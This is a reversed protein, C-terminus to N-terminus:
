DTCDGTPVGVLRRGALAEPLEVLAVTHVLPATSFETRPPPGYVKLIVQDQAESIQVGKISQASATVVVAIHRGDSQVSAERWPLTCLGEAQEASLVPLTQAGAPLGLPIQRIRSDGAASTDPTTESMTAGGNTSSHVGSQPPAACGAVPVIMLIVGLLALASRRPM